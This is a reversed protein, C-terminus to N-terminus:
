LKGGNPGCKGAIYDLWRQRNFRPNQSQCFDALTALQEWKFEDDLSVARANYARIANALAIFDKKTMDEGMPARGVLGRFPGNQSLAALERETVILSHSLRFVHVVSAIPALGFAFYCLAARALILLALTLVSDTEGLALFHVSFLLTQTGQAAIWQRTYHSCEAMKVVIM